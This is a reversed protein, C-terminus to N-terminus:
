TEELMMPIDPFERVLQDLSIEEGNIHFAKRGSPTTIIVIEPQINGSFVNVGRYWHYRRVRSITAITIEGTTIRNVVIKEKEAM